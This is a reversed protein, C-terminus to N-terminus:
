WRQRSTGTRTSSSFTFSSARFYCSIMLSWENSVNSIILLRSVFYTCIHIYTHIYLQVNSCRPVIHLISFLVLCIKLHLYKMRSVLANHQCILKWKMQLKFVFYVNFHGFFCLQRIDGLACAKGMTNAIRLCQNLRKKRLIALLM